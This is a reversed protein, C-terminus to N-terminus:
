IIRCFDFIMRECHFNADSCCKVLCFQFTIFLFCGSKSMRQSYKDMGEIFILLAGETRWTLNYLNPIRCCIFCARPLRPARPPTLRSSLRATVNLSSRIGELSGPTLLVWENVEWGRGESERSLASGFPVAGPQHATILILNPSGFLMIPFLSTKRSYSRPFSPFPSLSLSPPLSSPPLGHPFPSSCALSTPQAQTSSDSILQTKLLPSINLFM